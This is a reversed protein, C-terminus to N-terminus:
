WYYNDYDNETFEYGCKPCRDIIEFSDGLDLIFKKHERAAKIWKQFEENGGDLLKAPTVYRLDTCFECGCPRM